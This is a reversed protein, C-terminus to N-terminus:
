IFQKKGKECTIEERKRLAVFQRPKQLPQQLGSKRLQLNKEFKRQSELIFEQQKKRWMDHEFADNRIITPILNKKFMFKMCKNLVKPTGLMKNENDFIINSDHDKLNKGEFLSFGSLSQEKKEKAEKDFEKISLDYVMESNADKFVMMEIKAMKKLSCDKSNLNPKKPHQPSNEKTEENYFNYNLVMVPKKKNKCWLFINM